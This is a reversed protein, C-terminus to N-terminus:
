RLRIRDLHDFRSMESLIIRDGAELGELVEVANFSARGLRV